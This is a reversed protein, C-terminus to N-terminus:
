RRGHCTSRHSGLHFLGVYNTSRSQSSREGTWCNRCCNETRLCIRPKSWEVSVQSPGLTPGTENLNGGHTFSSEADTPVKLMTPFTFKLKCSRAPSRKKYVISNNKYTPPKASYNINLFRWDWKCIPLHDMLGCSLISNFGYRPIWQHLFESFSGLKLVFPQNVNLVFIQSQLKM